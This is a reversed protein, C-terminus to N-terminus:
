YEVHSRICIHDAEPLGRVYCLGHGKQMRM